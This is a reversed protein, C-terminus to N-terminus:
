NMVQGLAWLAQNAVGENEDEIADILADLARPDEIMGLAWAAQSRVSASADSNVIAILGDVGDSSEIMGLGWAAQSRVGASEDRLATLLAPVGDFSEIMGLAWAAQSRVNESPDDIVGSLAPVAASSEIMGLGWAAESRVNASEDALADALLPVAERDESMGLAHAAQARINARDSSLARRMAELVRRDLTDAPTALATVDFARVRSSVRVRSSLGTVVNPAPAPVVRVTPSVSITPDVRKVGVAPLEISEVPDPATVAVFSPTPDVAADATADRGPAAPHFAALPVVLMGFLGLAATSGPRGVGRRDRTPDLIALLRGELESPRAMSVAAWGLRHDGRSRAVDLLLQAYDASRTGSTLVLDDCARERETRLRRTGVWALPNLWHVARAAQALLHVLCDRRKIHALEHLVVARRRDASWGSADPPLLLTPRLTGWAMPTGVRTSQIVRIRRRLGLDFATEDVRRTWGVDDVPTATRVTWWASGVGVALRALLLIAGIAWTGILVGLPSLASRDPATSATADSVAAPAVTAARPASSVIVPAGSSAATAPATTVVATALAPAPTIATTPGDAADGPWGPVPVRWTPLWGALLPLVLVAAFALAWVHHRLSASAGRLLRTMGLAAVLIVASKIAVDFAFPLWGPGGSSLASLESM